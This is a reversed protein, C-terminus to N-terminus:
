LDIFYFQEGLAARETGPAAAAGGQASAPEFCLQTGMANVRHELAGDWGRHLRLFPKGTAAAARGAPKHFHLMFKGSLELFVCM